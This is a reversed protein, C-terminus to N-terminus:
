ESEQNFQAIFSAAKEWVVQREADCTLIHGSYEVWFQEKTRSGLSNYIAEMHGDARRVAHDNLSGMLLAPANVRPLGQRMEELLEQLQLYSITPESTYAVRQQLAQKDFWVPEGKPIEPKFFAILRLFRLRPDDPLHHPAAMAIVGDLPQRAALTLALIGGMSLGLVFVKRASQKLLWYGGMVDALWDQWHMRAMDKVSTGHGSLRIGLVTYGAAHLYKGLGRMEQPTATFGHVLLCGTPGGPFYFPEAGPLILTENAPSPQTSQSSM